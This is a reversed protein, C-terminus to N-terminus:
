LDLGLSMWFAKFAEKLWAERDPENNHLRIAEERAESAFELILGQNATIIATQAALVEEVKKKNEARRTEYEQCPTLESAARHIVRTPM